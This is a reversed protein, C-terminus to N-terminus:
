FTKGISFGIYHTFNEYEGSLIANTVENDEFFAAIYFVDLVIKNMKYGLGVSFDHQHSEPAAPTLTHDPVPNEVFVYGGRLSLKNNVEYEAGVKFLWSDKWDLSTISDTIGAQPVEESLDLVQKDFNSWGTWEVDMSLTWKSSPRYALAFSAIDAFKVSSEANTEFSGGGFASQLAPAINELSLTGSQDVEIASRYALGVSFKGEPFLLLGLNYGWGGGDMELSLRADTAGMSSQDLMKEADSFAHMYNLGLGASLEPLIKWAITPNVSVTATMSEVSAYRTLGKEDWKRGGIGFPSYIGLGLVVAEMGFDSSVYFHPPFFVQFETKESEGSPSIYETSPMVATAGGYLNIGKLNTLGAPNHLIASPDDAIAVFATGMSAAKAGHVPGGAFAIRPGILTLSLAAIASWPNEAWQSFWKM